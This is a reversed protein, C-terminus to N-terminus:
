GRRVALGALLIATFASVIAGAYFPTPRFVLRVDHSGPTLRVARFLGDARLVPAAHGDVEARWYPSYSDRVVLYGGGEPASARIAVVGTRDVTIAAAPAQPAGEAGSPPVEADVLVLEDPNSEPAMLRDVARGADPEVEADPVVAVRPSASPEEYVKMDAGGPVPGLLRAAPSPAEPVVFYKVTARTLFRTRTARDARKLKRLTNTYERPWMASIDISVSDRISWASPLTALLLSEIAHQEQLTYPEISRVRTAPRNDYDDPEGHVVWV